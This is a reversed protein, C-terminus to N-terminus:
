RSALTAISNNWTSNSEGGFLGETRFFADLDAARENGSDMFGVISVALLAALQDQTNARNFLPPNDNEDSAADKDQLLRELPLSTV